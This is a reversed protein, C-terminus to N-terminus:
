LETPITGTLRNRDLRLIELRSLKGSCAHKALVSLGDSFPYRYRGM